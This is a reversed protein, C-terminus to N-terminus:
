KRGKPGKGPKTNNRGGSAVIRAATEAANRKNKRGLMRPNLPLYAHPQLAGPRMVDGQGGKRSRYAEGFNAGFTTRGRHPDGRRSLSARTASTVAEEAKSAPAMERRVSGTQKRKAVKGARVIEDEPDVEMAEAAAAPEAGGPLAVRVKGNSFSVGDADTDEASERARKGPRLPPAQALPATLLDVAAAGPSSDGWTERMGRGASGGGEGDREEGVEDEDGEGLLAEYEAHRNRPGGPEDDDGDRVAKAALRADTHRRAREKQKRMHTLLRTHPEPTVQMMVELGFRKVLREMLYRVQYKLHAHKNSCWALLPPVLRPLLPEVAERPLAALQVKLLVVAARVVEQERHRLLPLVTEFLRIGAPTIAPSARHEYLLRSLALLSAAVMHPTKGALGAAVSVVVSSLADARKADPAVAQAREAILLLADFAAARSKVNSEKTALVVEGLMRGLAAHLQDASLRTAIAQLCLLRRRKCATHCAPLAEDLAANIEDLRQSFFSPHHEVLTSLAKYGKKQLLVNAHTLHPKCARWLLPAQDTPSIAPALALLLELLSCQTEISGQATLPAPPPRPM